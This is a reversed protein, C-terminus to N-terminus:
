LDGSRRVWRGEVIPCNVVSAHWLLEAYADSYQKASSAIIGKQVTASTCRMCLQIFASVVWSIARRINRRSLRLCEKEIYAIMLDFLSFLGDFSDSNELADRRQSMSLSPLKLYGLFLAAWLFM